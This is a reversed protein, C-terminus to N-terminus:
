KVTVLHMPCLKFPFYADKCTKTTCTRANSAFFPGLTVITPDETLLPKFCEITDMVIVDVTFVLQEQNLATTSIDMSEIDGEYGFSQIHDRSCGHAGPYSQLGHVLQLVGIPSAGDQVCMGLVGDSRRFDALINQHLVAVTL